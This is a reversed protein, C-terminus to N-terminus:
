ELLVKDIDKKYKERKEKQSNVQKEFAHYQKKIEMDMNEQTWKKELFQITITKTLYIWGGVRKQIDFCCKYQNRLIHGDYNVNQIILRNPKEKSEEEHM